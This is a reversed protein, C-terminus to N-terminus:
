KGQVIPVIVAAFTALATVWMAVLAQWQYRASDKQAGLAAFTELAIRRKLEADIDNFNPSNVANRRQETILEEISMGKLDM